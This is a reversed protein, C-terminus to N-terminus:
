TQEQSVKFFIVAECPVGEIICGTRKAGCKSCSDLASKVGHNCKLNEKYRELAGLIVEPENPLKKKFIRRDGRDLIGLYSSTSHLDIGAYLEM